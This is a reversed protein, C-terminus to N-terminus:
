ITPSVIDDKLFVVVWELKKLDYRIKFGDIYIEM